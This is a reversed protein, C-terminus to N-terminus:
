YHTGWVIFLHSDVEYYYGNMARSDDYKLEDLACVYLYNSNWDPQCSEPIDFGCKKVLNEYGNKFKQRNQARVEEDGSDYRNTYFGKKTLLETPEEEFRIAYFDTGDGRFNMDNTYYLIQDSKTLNVGYKNKVYRRLRADKSFICGSVGFILFAFILAVAIFGFITSIKKKM